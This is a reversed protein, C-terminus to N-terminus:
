TSCLETSFIDYSRTWWVFDSVAEAERIESDSSLSSIAASVASMGAGAGVSFVTSSCDWM